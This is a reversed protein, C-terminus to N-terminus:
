SAPELGQSGYLLFHRLQLAIEYNLRQKDLAQLDSPQVPCLMPNLKSSFLMLPM